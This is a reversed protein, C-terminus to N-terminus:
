TDKPPILSQFVSVQESKLNRFHDHAKRVDASFRDWAPKYNDLVRRAEQESRSVFFVFTPKKRGRKNEVMTSGVAQGLQLDGNEFSYISRSFVVWEGKNFFLNSV